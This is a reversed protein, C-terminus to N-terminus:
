IGAWQSAIMCHSCLQYTQLGPLRFDNHRLRSDFWLRASIAPSLLEVEFRRRPEYINAEPVMTIKILNRLQTATALMRCKRLDYNIADTSM